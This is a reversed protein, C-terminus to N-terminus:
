LFNRKGGPRPALPAKYKKGAVVEAVKFDVIKGVVMFIHDDPVTKYAVKAKLSENCVLVDEGTRVDFVSSQIAGGFTLPSM